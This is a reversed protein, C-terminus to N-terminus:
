VIKVSSGAFSRAHERETLQNVFELLQRSWCRGLEGRNDAIGLDDVPRPSLNLVAGLWRNLIEEVAQRRHLTQNRDQSRRPGGLEAAAGPTQPASQGQSIM